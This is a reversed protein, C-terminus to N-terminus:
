AFAGTKRRSEPDDGMNYYLEIRDSTAV